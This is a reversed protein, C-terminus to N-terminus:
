DYGAGVGWELKGMGSGEWHMEWVIEHRRKLHKNKVGSELYLQM